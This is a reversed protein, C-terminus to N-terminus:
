GENRVIKRLCDVMGNYAEEGSGKGQQLQSFSLFDAILSM